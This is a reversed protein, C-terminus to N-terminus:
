GRIELEDMEKTLGETVTCLAVIVILLITWKINWLKKLESALDLYKNKENEKLKVKHNAPIAFDM